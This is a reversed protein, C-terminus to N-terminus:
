GASGSVVDPDPGARARAVAGQGAGPLAPGRVPVVVTVTVTGGPGPLCDAQEGGNRRTVASATTCADLGSRAATAAALAALDAASQARARAHQAAGLAALGLFCLLVVAVVGLLLVTGAGREAGHHRAVGRM